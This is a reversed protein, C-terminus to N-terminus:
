KSQKDRNLSQTILSGGAPTARAPRILLWLLVGAIGLLLVGLALLRPGSLLPSPLLLGEQALPPVGPAAPAAPQVAVEKPPANSVHVVVSPLAPQTPHASAESSPTKVKTM